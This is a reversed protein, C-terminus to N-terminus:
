LLLVLYVKMLIACSVPLSEARIRMRKVRVFEHTSRSYKNIFRKKYFYETEIAMQNDKPGYKYELHRNKAIVNLSISISRFYISLIVSSIDLLLKPLSLPM